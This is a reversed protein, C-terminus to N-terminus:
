SRTWPDVRLITQEREYGVGIIDVPRGVFEQIFSIYAQAERPLDDYSRAGGLPQRWGTLSKTVPRCRELVYSSSPFTDLVGEDTEYAICVKLEDLTDYVDLHTLALGDIGNARVIYKLAVLDLYGCRRPRGTTVGYERGVERVLEELGSTDTSRFESPFPGNGVRTSYAKFVGIIRDIRRPGIGGGLSAGAAASYGSSVYPYTGQDLDLLAGQAGEFLIHDDPDTHAMFDVIDVVMPRLREAQEALYARSEEDLKELVQPEEMDAIRVGDRSAKMAYAVGIGRGTTGLPQAREQDTRKDIERYSPLVLHARDSVLVRGEWSVGQATLTDLEEFLALPDIVMGTGLIVTTNEYLIGSPVLHLKYTEDGKVITHGANAGGSFRVVVSTQEA